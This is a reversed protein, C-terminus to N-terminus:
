GIAIGEDHYEYWGRADSCCEATKLEEYIAAMVFLAIMWTALVGIGFVLVGLNAFISLVLLSWFLKFKNGATMRASINLASAISDKFWDDAIVFMVFIWGVMLSLYAIGLAAMCFILILQLMWTQETGFASTLIDMLTAFAGMQGAIVPVAVFSLLFMYLLAAVFFQGWKKFSTFIELWGPNKDTVCHLAIKCLGGHFQPVISMTIVGHLIFGLPMFIVALIGSFPWTIM